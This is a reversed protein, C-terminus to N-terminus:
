KSESSETQKRRRRRGEERERLLERIRVTLEESTHLEM